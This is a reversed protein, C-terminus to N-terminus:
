DALGHGCEPCFKEGGDLGFGCAPCDQSQLDLGCEPCFKEDGSLANDCSPCADGDATESAPESGARATDDGEVRSESGAAEEALRQELRAITERVLTEADGGANELWSDLEELTSDDGAYEALLTTIAEWDREATTRGFMDTLVEPDVEVTVQGPRVDHLDALTRAAALQALLSEDTLRRHIEGAGAAVGDPNEAVLVELTELAYHRVDSDDSDLLGVFRDTEDALEAPRVSAYAALAETASGRVSSSLGDTLPDDADLQEFLTPVFAAMEEPDHAAYSALAEM